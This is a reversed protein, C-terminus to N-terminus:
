SSVQPNLSDESWNLPNNVIYHRITDLESENRIIHEYYNRQWVRRDFPQFAGSKVGRIYENTTMTKFWQIMSPLPAGPHAGQDTTRDVKQEISLIGHLHNPMIVYSDLSVTPFKASLELWWRAVMLGPGSLQIEGSDVEGFLCDRNQTCITIFYAGPQSYHYNKLRISRRHHDTRHINMIPPVLASM